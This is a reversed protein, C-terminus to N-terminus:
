NRKQVYILSAIMGYFVGLMSSYWVHGAICSIGFMVTVYFGVFLGYPRGKQISQGILLSQLVILFLTIGTGVIGFYLMSDLLDMEITKARQLYPIMRNQFPLWGTGFLKEFLNYGDMFLSIGAKAFEDRSSLLANIFSRSGFFHEWRNLLGIKQVLVFLVFYGFVPLAMFSILILSVQKKSFRGLFIRSELFPIALGAFATSIIGTKTAKIVALFQLFLLMVLYLAMSKNRYTYVLVFMFISVMTASVENGSAFFGISGIGGKYQSYGIGVLGLFMNITFVIFNFKMIGFIVREIDFKGSIQADKFYLFTLPFLLYRIVFNADNVYEGISRYGPIHMTILFFLLFAYIGILQKSADKLRVFLLLTLGIKFPYSLGFFHVKRILLGNISDIVLYYKLLFLIWIDFRNM